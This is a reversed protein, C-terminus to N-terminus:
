FKKGQSTLEGAKLELGFMLSLRTFCLSRFFYARDSSMSTLKHPVFVASLLLSVFTYRKLLVLPKISSM